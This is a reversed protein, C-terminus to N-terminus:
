YEFNSKKKVARIFLILVLFTHISINSKQLLNTLHPGEALFYIFLVQCCCYVALSHELTVHKHLEFLFLSCSSKGDM